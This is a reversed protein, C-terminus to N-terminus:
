STSIWCVNFGAKQLKHGLTSSHSVILRYSQYNCSSDLTVEQGLYYRSTSLVVAPDELPHPRYFVDLSCINDRVYMLLHSSYSPQGIILVADSISDPQVLGIGSSTNINSLYTCESVVSPSFGLALAEDTYTSDYLIISPREDYMSYLQALLQFGRHTRDFHAHQVEFARVKHKICAFHWALKSTYGDSIFVKEPKLFRIVINIWPLTLSPLFKFDTLFLLTASLFFISECRIFQGKPVKSHDLYYSVRFANPSVYSTIFDFTPVVEPSISDRWTVYIDTPRPSSFFVSLDRVLYFLASVFAILNTRSARNKRKSGRTITIYHRFNEYLSDVIHM